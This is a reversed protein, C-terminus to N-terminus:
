MAIKSMQYMQFFEQEFSRKIYYDCLCLSKANSYVSYCLEDFYQRYRAHMNEDSNQLQVKTYLEPNLRRTNQIYYNEKYLRWLQICKVM